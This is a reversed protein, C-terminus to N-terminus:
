VWTVLGNPGGEHHASVPIAPAEAQAVAQLQSAVWQLRPEAPRQVYFETADVVETVVVQLPPGM